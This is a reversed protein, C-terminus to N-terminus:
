KTAAAVAADLQEFTPVGEMFKKGNIFFSPTGEVGDNAIRAMRGNLATTAAQDKLCAEAKAEDVGNAKAVGFLVERINDPKWSPQSKFVSDVVDFYKAPGACRALIFGAAAVQQPATLVEKLTYYVRGTDVYKAKFAPFVDDNFHACHPCSLSAYEVVKVRANPNGLSMDGPEAAPAAFAPGAALAMLAAGILAHRRAIM